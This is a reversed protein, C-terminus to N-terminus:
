LIVLQNHHLPCYGFLTDRDSYGRKESLLGGAAQGCTVHFHNNCGPSDCNMCAGFKAKSEQGESQCICCSQFSLIKFLILRLLLIVIYFIFILLCVKNYRELPVRKLLIPELTSDNEFKIEPIYLACVVHAWGGHETM